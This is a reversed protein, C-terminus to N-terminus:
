YRFLDEFQVLFPVRAILSHEAFTDGRANDVDSDSAGSLRVDARTHYLEPDFTM